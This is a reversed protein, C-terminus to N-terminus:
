RIALRIRTEIRAGVRPAVTLMVGPLARLPTEIRAGVRPAVPYAPQEAWVRQLKLGRAWAPRSGTADPACNIPHRKLGRAWAPRSVVHARAQFHGFTEIRAGVRPAVAECGIAVRASGTEIRAGVRPAVQM